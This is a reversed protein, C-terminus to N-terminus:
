PRWVTIQLGDDPHYVWRAEYDDWNDTQQGDLSRTTSIHDTVRTPAGLALLVCIVDDVTQYAVGGPSEDGETRMTVTTGGDSVADAPLLCQVQAAQVPPTPTAPPSASAQPSDPNGCGAVAVAVMVAAAIPGAGIARM